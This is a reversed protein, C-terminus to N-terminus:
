SKQKKMPSEDEDEKEKEEEKEEEKEKENEKEEKEEEDEEDDEEEEDSSHEATMDAPDVAEDTLHFLTEYDDYDFMDDLVKRVEQQVLAAVRIITERYKVHTLGLQEDTKTMLKQFSDSYGKFFTKFAPELYYEQDVMFHLDQALLNLIALTKPMADAYKGKTVYSKVSKMWPTMFKEWIMTHQHTDGWGSNFKEYPKMVKDIKAGMTKHYCLYIRKRYALIRHDEEKKDKWEKHQEEYTPYVM